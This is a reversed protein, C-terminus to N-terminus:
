SQLFVRARLPGKQIHLRSGARRQIIARQRESADCPVGCIEGVSRISNRPTHSCAVEECEELRQTGETLDTVTSRQCKQADTDAM